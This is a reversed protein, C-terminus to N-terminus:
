GDVQITPEVVAGDCVRRRHEDTMIHTRDAHALLLKDVAPLLRM